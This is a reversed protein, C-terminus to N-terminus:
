KRLLYCQLLFVHDVSEPLEPLSLTFNNALFSSSSDAAFALQTGAWKELIELRAMFDLGTKAQFSEGWKSLQEMASRLKCAPEEAGKGAKNLAALDSHSGALKKLSEKLGSLDLEGKPDLQIIKDFEPLLGNIKDSVAKSVTVNKQAAL